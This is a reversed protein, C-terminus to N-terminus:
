VDILLDRRAEFAGLVTEIDDQEVSFEQLTEEIMEKLRDFHMPAIELNHHARQIHTDTFSAPGGMLSAVFKTQHDILKPMDVDDFFPGVDDDDLLKDYLRMVIKSVTSFGGYKDFLSKEM